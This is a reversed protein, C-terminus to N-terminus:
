NAKKESKEAKADSKESKEAKKEEKADTKVEKEKADAPKANEDLNKNFSVEKGKADFVKVDASKVLGGIYDNLKKEQLKGKIQDKLETLTPATVKRSDEVKIIHYGFPSKVPGSIEGKKMAFAADAFEKVMKDKTFYGLDGGNKASGPDKSLEKAVDDFKAGGDLKKKVEKAAAEDAVLIHRARVEKDDKMGSVMTEYEKKVDSDSILSATKSELFNRVVLKRKIDELERQVKESKDIGAKTAEGYVLKEAMVARLVRERMEPKAADFSPAQQGQFLGEWLHQLEASSVDQNNVKMVVYEDAAFIPSAFAIMAVTTLAYFRRM